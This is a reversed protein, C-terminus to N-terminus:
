IVKTWTQESSTFGLYALLSESRPNGNGIMSALITVGRQKMTKEAFRFMKVAIMNRRFKPLLYYSDFVGILVSKYHLSQSVLGLIYGVINGSSRATVLHFKGEQEFKAYLSEDPDVTARGTESCNALILHPAEMRADSFPEVQFKVASYHEEL